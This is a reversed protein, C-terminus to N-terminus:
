ETEFIRRKELIKEVTMKPFCKVASESGDIIDVETGLIDKNERFFHDWYSVFDEQNFGWRQTQSSFKFGHVRHPTEEGPYQWFYRKLDKFCCDNGLLVIPNCGMIYALHVATGMSTRSGIIPGTKNLKLGNLNYENTTPSFWWTHEFLVVNSLESCRGEFKDKYLLKPCDIKAVVDKYYSWNKIASDDSVFYDCKPVKIVGSNVAISLHDKILNTDIFHLSPGAGCIFVIQDKHINKLDQINM